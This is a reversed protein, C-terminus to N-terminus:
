ASSVKWAEEVRALFDEGSLTTVAGISYALLIAARAQPRGLLNLRNLVEHYPVPLRKSQNTIEEVCFSEVASRVDEGARIRRKKWEVNRIMHRKRADRFSVNLDVCVSEFVSAPETSARDRWAATLDDDRRVRSSIRSLQELASRLSAALADAALQWTPNDIIWQKYFATAEENDDHQKATRLQYVTNDFREIERHSEVSRLFAVDAAIAERFFKYYDSILSAFGDESTVDPARNLPADYALVIGTCAEKNFSITELADMM